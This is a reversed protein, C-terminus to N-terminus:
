SLTHQFFFSPLSMWAHLVCVCMCKLCIITYIHLINLHSFQGRTQGWKKRSRKIKHNSKITFLLLNVGFNNPPFQMKFLIPHQWFKYLKLHRYVKNWRYWIFHWCAWFLYLCSTYYIVFLLFLTKTLIFSGKVIFSTIPLWPNSM